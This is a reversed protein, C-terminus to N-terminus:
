APRVYTSTVRQHRGNDATEGVAPGRWNVNRGCPAVEPDGEATVMERRGREGTEHGRLDVGKSGRGDDVNGGRGDARQGRKEKVRKAYDDTRGVASTSTSGQVNVQRRLGGQVRSVGGECCCAVLGDFSPENKVIRHRLQIGM